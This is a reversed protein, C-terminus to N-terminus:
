SFTQFEMDMQTYDCLTYQRQREISQAFIAFHMFM